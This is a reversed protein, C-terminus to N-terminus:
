LGMFSGGDATVTQGTVFRALDSALFVAVGGIDATPEGIRRLPTRGVLRQELVPNEEYAREMAPTMAVPSILNVRIGDPGWERALSKAFGRQAAKAMGYLPLYPSGEVGASSTLLIYSGGTAQLHPHAVQACDFSARLCTEAMNTWHLPTLDQLEGPPGTGALANHVVCDLGGYRDITAAVVHELDDRRTVDTRVCVAEHGAARIAAATPEGNEVRRAAVVVNAGQAAMAEAIGRGVGDGAGTVIATRGDLLGM